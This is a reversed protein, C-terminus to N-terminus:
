KNDISPFLVSVGFKDGLHRNLTEYVEDIQKTSLETTSTKGLQAKMVPRWLFEKVTDATWPIEADAKLTKKMDLGADSLAQALLGFYTHLASNQRPTRTKTTVKLEVVNKTAKLRMVEFQFAAAEKSDALNYQAM